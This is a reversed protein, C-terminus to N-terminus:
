ICHDTVENITHKDKSVLISRSTSATAEEINSQSTDDSGTLLNMKFNTLFDVYPLEEIYNLIVSKCISGGFEIETGSSDDEQEFAWPSLFKIIDQQLIAEYLTYDKGTIFSVNFDLEISELLPNVVELQVHPSVRKALFDSVKDLTNLSTYPELPNVANRNKIDPVTVIMVKGPALENIFTRNSDTTDTKLCTHNLCKVKYLEPFAELVLHEYDWITIARDKHRLRESVRKYFHESQEKLKGGSSSFAQEIKKVAAQPKLLKSITGAALPTALFDEANDQDDFSLEVAQAKVDIINCIADSHENVSARLWIHERDLWTSELDIRKPFFFTMLGSQLLGNTGDSYNAKKQDDFELWVNNFLYSWTVDQVKKLPNATGEAIQFLITVSQQPLAKEIGIYVNGEAEVVPILTLNEGDKNLLPHYERQGFPGIHFFQETRKSFAAESATVFNFQSEATYDLALSNFTPAYPPDKLTVSATTGFQSDFVSAKKLNDSLAMLAKTYGRQFKKHGFNDQLVLRIFADKSTTTYVPDASYNFDALSKKGLLTVNNNKTDAAAAADGTLESVTIEEVNGSLDGNILTLNSPGPSWTNNSLRGLNVNVKAGNAVNPKYTNSIDDLGEWGLKIKLNEKLKKQFVENSGIVLTAGERPISGFPLIPKSLDLRGVQNQVMMDKLGTVAVRSTVTSIILKKWDKYPYNGVSSEQLLVQMLPADTQFTGEHIKASYPIVKGEEATLTAELVINGGSYTVAKSPQISIWGEEGTLLVKFQEADWSSATIPDTADVLTTALTLTITREGGQLYLNPTAIAFGIDTLVKLTDLLEKEEDDTTALFSGDDDLYNNIPGFPKWQGDENQLEEGLGDASNAMAAAYLKENQPHKYLSKLQAVKAKNLATEFNSTYQVINSESDKGAKFATGEELLYDDVQKALEMVAFVTDAEAAKEELQLIQKFYFDVHREKVGNLNDQAHRFLRLFTLFLSMHPTHSPWDTMTQELFAPAEAVIRYYARMLSNFVEQIAELAKLLRTEAYEPKKMRAPEGASFAYEFDTPSLNAYYTSWDDESSLWYSGLGTDIIDQFFFAQVGEVPLLGVRDAPDVFRYNFNGVGNGSIGVKYYGLLNKFSTNCQQRITGEAFAQLPSEAPLANVQEDLHAALSGILDFIKKFSPIHDPINKKVASKFTGDARLKSAKYLLDIEGGTGTLQDLLEDYAEQYATLNNEAILAILTSVDSCFFDKWTGNESNGLDYYKLHQSFKKAFILLDSYSHEDIQVYDKRLTNLLRQSQSTGGRSLPNKNKCNQTM